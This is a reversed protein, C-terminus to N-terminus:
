LLSDPAVYSDFIVPCVNLAVSGFSYIDCNRTLVPVYNEMEEDDESSPPLLEPARWRMAGGVTRSWYSTGWFEPFIVSLGFDTLCADGDANILINALHLRKSLTLDTNLANLLNGGDMWPSIMAVPNPGAFPSSYDTTIGLFPVINAHHTRHWVKTERRGRKIFTRLKFSTVESAIHQKVLIIKVAVTIKSGDATSWTGQVVHSHAGSTAKNTGITTQYAVQGTLDPINVSAQTNPLTLAPM